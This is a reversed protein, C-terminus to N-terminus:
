ARKFVWSFIAEDYFGWIRRFVRTFDIGSLYKDFSVGEDFFFLPIINVQPPILMTILFGLFIADRYKFNLRAFAYGAFASIIVQGFTTISAVILSNFFYKSLPIQGFLNKYNTLTLNTHVLKDPNSFIENEPVFSLNIMAFFPYLMSIAILILIIYGVVKRYNKM